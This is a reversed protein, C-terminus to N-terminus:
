VMLLHAPISRSYYAIRYTWTNGMLKKVLNTTSALMSQTGDEQKPTLGEVVHMLRAHMDRYRELIVQLFFRITPDSLGMKQTIYDRSIILLVTDRTTTATATRMQADILAMEGLLDGANLNAIVLKKGNKLLSLEIEGEEIIYACDGPDGESFLTTNAPLSKKTASDM